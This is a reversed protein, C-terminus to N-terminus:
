AKLNIALLSSCILSNSKPKLVQSLATLNKEIADAFLEIGQNVREVM